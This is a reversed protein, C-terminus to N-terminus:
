QDIFTTALFGKGMIPNIKDTETQDISNLVYVPEKALQPYLKVEKAYDASSRDVLTFDKLVSTKDTDSMFITLKGMESQRVAQPVANLIGGQQIGVNIIDSMYDPLALDANAQVFLLGIALVILLIYPKLFKALRLM